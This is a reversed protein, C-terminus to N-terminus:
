YSVIMKGTNSSNGIEVKYYYIGQQLKKGFKQDINWEVKNKGKKGSFTMNDVPTGLANYIIIRVPLPKPLTFTFNTYANVPNPYQILNINNSLDNEEVKIVGHQTQLNILELNSNFAMAPTIDSTISITSSSSKKGKIKFKLVAIKTYDELSIGEAKPDDFSVTLFGKEINNTGYFNEFLLDEVQIYELMEPDWSLTFQYGGINQFNKVLLPVEIESNFSGSVEGMALEVEGKYQVRGYSTPSWSANVDGLKIATFNLNENGNCNIIQKEDPFPFPNNPFSFNHSSTVFEWLRNNPFSQDMGLIVRRILSIDSTTVTSSANVDAAIFSYPNDFLLINLIHRRILAIDMTTIGQNPIPETNPHKIPTITFNAGTPATFSFDGNPNTHVTKSIDGALYLSINQVPFGKETLVRGSLNILSTIYVEGPNTVVPITLFNDNTIEIATPSSSINISTSTGTNQNTNFHIVFLISNEPLTQAQSDPQDWSYTLIGSSTQSTGFNGSNISSIAYSSTGSYTLVEPDWNVSFQTTLINNFNTVIIPITIETNPGAHLSELTIIVPDQTAVTENITFSVPVSSCGTPLNTAILFYEGAHLGSVQNGSAIPTSLSQNNYWTFEFNDPDNHEVSATVAGNPSYGDLILLSPNPLTLNRHITAFKGTECGNTNDNISLYYNGEPINALSSSYDGQTEKILTYNGQDVVYWRFTLDTYLGFNNFSAEISGNPNENICSTNHRTNLDIEPYYYPVEISQTAQACELPDDIKITYNGIPINELITNSNGTISFSEVIPGNEDGEHLNLNYTKSNLAGALSVIINGTISCWMNDYYSDAYITPVPDQNGVLVTAINKCEDTIRTVLVTYPGPLVNNLFSGIIPKGDKDTVVDGNKDFWEFTYHSSPTLQLKLSGDATACNSARKTGGGPSIPIDFYCDNTNSEPNNGFVDLSRILLSSIILLLYLNYKM